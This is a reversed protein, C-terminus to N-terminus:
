GLDLGSDMDLAGLAGEGIGGTRQREQLIAALDLTGSLTLRELFYAHTRVVVWPTGLGLTFLGILANVLQLGLWGSGTMTSTFRAGALATRNWFYAQQHGMYYLWAFGLTPLALLWSVLFRGYLDGAQGEFEFRASGFRSHRMMWGRRWVSYLPYALGLSVVLLAMRPLYGKLFEGARGDFGFRIGRWETRPLRYRISGVSAFGVLLILLAYGLLMWGASALTDSMGAILFLAYIPLIFAFFAILVGRFLEGGRGHFSMADRGVVVSGVLFRLERVRGWAFWIGLTVVNLIFNILAIGFLESGLGQFTFSWDPASTARPGSPIGPPPEVNRAITM